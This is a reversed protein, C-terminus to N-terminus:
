RIKFKISCAINYKHNSRCRKNHFPLTAPFILFYLFLEYKSSKGGVRLLPQHIDANLVHALSSKEVGKLFRCCCAERSRPSQCGEVFSMVV